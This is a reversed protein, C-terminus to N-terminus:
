WCSLSLCGSYTGGEWSPPGRKEPHRAEAQLRLTLPYGTATPRNTKIEETLSKFINSATGDGTEGRPQQKEEEMIPMRDPRAAHRTNRFVGGRNYSQNVIVLGNGGTKENQGSFARVLNAKKRPSGDGEIM